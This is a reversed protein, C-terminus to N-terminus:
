ALYSSYSCITMLILQVRTTVSAHAMLLVLMINKVVQLKKAGHM